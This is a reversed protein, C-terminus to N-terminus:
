IFTLEEVRMSHVPDGCLGTKGVYYEKYENHKGHFTHGQKFFVKVNLSLLFFSLASQLRLINDMM